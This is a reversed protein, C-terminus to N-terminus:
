KGLWRSYRASDTRCATAIRLRSLAIFRLGMIRQPCRVRCCEVLLGEGEDEGKAFPLLPSTFGNTSNAPLNASVCLAVARQHRLAPSDGRGTEPLPNLDPPDAKESLWIAIRHTLQRRHIPDNSYFGFVATKQAFFFRVNIRLQPRGLDFVIQKSLRIGARDIQMVAIVLLWRAISSKKEVASTKIEVHAVDLVRRRFTQMQM